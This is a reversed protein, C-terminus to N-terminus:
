AGERFEITSRKVKLSSDNKLENKIENKFGDSPFIPHNDLLEWIDKFPVELVGEYQSKIYDCVNLLTYCNEDVNYILSVCEDSDFNLSYQYLDKLKKNSSQGGFTKWATKKFLKFGNMNKTVFILNYLLANKSNFFPFSAIYCKKNHNLQLIIEKIRQEYAQRSNGSLILQEISKQYTKEYKNRAKESKSEKVGRISDSVMHNIIIEGWCNLFPEIADWDISADYPDYILLIHCNNNKILNRGINKLLVNADLSYTEIKFNQMDAPLLNRLHEIKEKNYDNFSRFLM